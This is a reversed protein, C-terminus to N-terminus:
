NRSGAAGQSEADVSQAGPRAVLTQDTSPTLEKPKFKLARKEILHWSCYGLALSILITVSLYTGFSIDPYKLLVAQQVPFAYIYVGYSCDGVKNVFTGLWSSSLGYALVIYPVTIWPLVNTFEPYPALLITAMLMVFVGSLSLWRELRFKAFCAGIMFYVGTLFVQRIDTGYIVVMPADRWCWFVVVAAFLATVAAYVLRGGKFLMGLGMVVLYMFFEVPLSWLSGNVAGPVKSQEFVGPLSFVPKLIINKLYGTFYPHLFYEKLSLTTFIPGLLLMSVLVVVILAPFIRLARKMLFDRPVPNSGWSKTILYGSIVFFIDIGLGGYSSLGLFGVAPKGYFMFSHAYLVMLAAILRLLNLNNDKHLM